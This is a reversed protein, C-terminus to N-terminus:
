DELVSWGGALARYVNIQSVLLAQHNQAIESNLATLRLGAELSPFLSDANSRYRLQALEYARERDSRAAILGDLQRATYIYAALATEVEALANLVTADYDAGAAGFRSRAITIEARQAGANFIPLQFGVGLAGTQSGPDFLDEINASALGAAGTLSFSPLLDAMEIGVQESAAALRREAARIDARRSLLDSPLGVPIRAVASMQPGSALLAEMVDAPPQGTLVAIRAAAARQGSLLQHRGPPCYRARIAWDDRDGHRSFEAFARFWWPTKHTAM